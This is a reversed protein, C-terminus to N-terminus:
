IVVVTTGISSWNWIFQAADSPLNVCGHTGLITNGDGLDTPALNSGPGFNSRWPADHLGEGGDFPMWYTVPSPLYYYPSGPPWPSHFVFPSIKAYIHFIGHDTPLEPGGTTVVTSYILKGDQYVHAWQDETSVLIFQGPVTKQFDDAISAIEADLETLKIAAKTPDTQARVASDLRSVASSYTTGRNSFVSLLSIQDSAASADSDAQSDIATISHGDAALISNVSKQRTAVIQGVTTRLGALDRSVARFQQLLHASRLASEAAQLSKTYPATDVDFAVAANFQSQTTVLDSQAQLRATTTAAKIVSRIHRRLLRYARTQRQYFDATAQDWLLSATPPSKATLVAARARWPTLQSPLLGVRGARTLAQLALVRANQMSSRAQDGNIIQTARATGFGAFLVVVTLTGIAVWVRKRM